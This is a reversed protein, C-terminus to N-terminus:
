ELSFVTSVVTFIRAKSKRHVTSERERKWTLCEDSFRESILSVRCKSKNLTTPIQSTTYSSIGVSLSLDFCYFYCYLYRSKWLKPIHSSLSSVPLSVTSLLLKFVKEQPAKVDSQNQSPGTRSRDNAMEQQIQQQQLQLHKQHDFAQHDSSSAKKSIPSESELQVEAKSSFTNVASGSDTSEGGSKSSGQHIFCVM